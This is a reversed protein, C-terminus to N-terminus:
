PVNSIFINDKVFHLESYSVIFQLFAIFLWNLCGPCVSYCLCIHNMTTWVLNWVASHCSKEWRFTFRISITGVDWLYSTCTQNSAILFQTDESEMSRNSCITSLLFKTTVISRLLTKWISQISRWVIIEMHYYHGNHRHPGKDLRQILHPGRSSCGKVRITSDKFSTTFPLNGAWSAINFDHLFHHCSCGGAFKMSCNGESM